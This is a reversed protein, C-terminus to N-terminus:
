DSGYKDQAQAMIGELNDDEIVESLFNNTWIECYWKSDFYFVYGCFNWASYQAFYSDEQLQKAVDQNIECDFNSMVVDPHEKFNEPIRM